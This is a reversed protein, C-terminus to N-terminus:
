MWLACWVAGGVRVPSGNARWRLLKFRYIVNMVPSRPAWTCSFFPAGALVVEEM